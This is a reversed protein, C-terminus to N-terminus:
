DGLHKEAGAGYEGMLNVLNEITINSLDSFLTLQDVTIGAQLAKLAMRRTAAVSGKQYGRTFGKEIGVEMGKEVGRRFGREEAKNSIGLKIEVDGKYRNYVLMDSESLTDAKCLAVAKATESDNMLADPLQETQENVLRFYDLWLKQTANMTKQGEDLKPLEVFVYSLGAIPKHTNAEEVEPFFHYYSDKEYDFIDNVLAIGIVPVNLSTISGTKEFRIYAKGQDLLVSQLFGDTWMVQFLVNFPSGALDTCRVVIAPNRFVPFTAVEDDTALSVTEAIRKEKLPLLSNILSKLLEPNQGFVKRIAMENRSDIYKM